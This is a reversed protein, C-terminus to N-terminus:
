LINKFREPLEVVMVRGLMAPKNWAYVPRIWTQMKRALATAKDFDQAENNTVLNITRTRKQFHRTSTGGIRDPNIVCQSAATYEAIM